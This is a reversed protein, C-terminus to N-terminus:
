KINDLFQDVLNQAILKHDETWNDVNEPLQRLADVLIADSIANIRAVIYPSGIKKIEAELEKVKNRAENREVILRYKCGPKHYQINNTKTLCNCSGIISDSDIDVDIEEWINLYHLQLCVCAGM